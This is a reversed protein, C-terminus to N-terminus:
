TFAGHGLVTSLIDIELGGYKKPFPLVMIGFAACKQWSDRWDDLNSSQSLETRVFDLVKKRLLEQEKNWGFDMLWKEQCVGFAAISFM